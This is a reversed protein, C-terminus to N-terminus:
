RGLSRSERVRPMLAQFNCREQKLFLPLPKTNICRDGDLVQIQNPRDGTASGRIDGDPLRCVTSGEIRPALMGLARYKQLHTSSSVKHPRLQNTPRSEKSECAELIRVTAHVSNGLNVMDAEITEERQEGKPDGGKRRLKIAVERPFCAIAIQVLRSPIVPM